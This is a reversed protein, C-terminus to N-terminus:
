TKVLCLQVGQGKIIFPKKQSHVVLTCWATAFFLFPGFIYSKM